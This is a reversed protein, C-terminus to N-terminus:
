WNIGLKEAAKYLSEVHYLNAYAPFSEGKVTMMFERKEVPFGMEETIVKAKSAIRNKESQTLHLDANLAWQNLSIMSKLKHNDAQLEANVKKLKSLQESAVLVARALFDDPSEVAEKAVAPAMYMGNKRISPLVESTVWKRFRKASPKNSRVILAYLGSESVINASQAKSGLFLNPDSERTSRRFEDSDLIHMAVTPNTHGLAECVDKAVFWPEGHEDQIIRINATLDATAISFNQVQTNM